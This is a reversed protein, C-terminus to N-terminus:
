QVGGKESPSEEGASTGSAFENLALQMRRRAHFLRSMITGKPVELIEAMEEYTLGDVERLLIVARHHDPLEDLGRQIGEVLERRSVAREPDSEILRPLIYVGEGADVQERTDDYEARPARNKRRVHDIALNMLIRYLWTYFSADGQFTALHEHVRVFADQVVDLADDRNRVVGLAIAFARAHYRDYLSRFAARDGSRFRAILEMDLARQAARDDSNKSPSATKQNM